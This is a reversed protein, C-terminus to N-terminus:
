RMSAPTPLSACPAAHVTVACYASSPATHRRGHHSGHRRPVLRGCASFLAARRADPGDNRADHDGDHQDRRDGREDNRDAVARLALRQGDAAHLVADYERAGHLAIPLIGEAGAGNHANLDCGRVLRLPLFKECRQLHAVDDREIVPRARPRLVIGDDIGVANNFYVPRFRAKREGRLAVGVIGGVRLRDALVVDDAFHGPAIVPQACEQIEQTRRRADHHAEDHGRCENQNVFNEIDRADHARVPM